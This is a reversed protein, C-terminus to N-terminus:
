GHSKAPKAQLTDLVHDTFKRSVPVVGSMGLLRLHLGHRNGRCSQVRALNVIFSRHCRALNPDDVLDELRKLSSRILHSRPIENELYHISVYNDESELYLVDRAAVLLPDKGNDSTFSLMRDSSVPPNSVLRTYESRLAQHRLYFLFGAIPFSIVMGVDRLFGLWSLWHFDHWGGAYNYMLFVVSGVLLYVWIIWSALRPLTPARILVPRLLFENAALILTVTLGFASLLTVFELSIRFDPDHNTVGFPQFALMFLTLFLGVSIAFIWKNAAEDFGDLFTTNHEHNM